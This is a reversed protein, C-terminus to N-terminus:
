PHAHEDFMRNAWRVFHEINPDDTHGGDHQRWALEGDLLDVNVGPMMEITYDDSRGLDRAGLLRFVPQAAIAAMFSGQHDLWLADGKEPIGHSIFVWRPACLAILFHSDMPLDNVDKRGFTSEEAGYKLFNGAMWHYGEWGTLNEVAEGFNRRYLSTGGEGSSAILGMAFRPDFAMTVLAAKGFRSVGDIGVRRADVEPLTELYDLGRSAGWAWARLAGWQDPKRPRGHNVLGIIGRTLGAGSPEGATPEPQGPRRFPRRWGGADAQVTSPNLIAYGWGAEILRDYKTPGETAQGGGFRYNPGFPSPDFPTWGFIMLVPRPRDTEKPMTLSMSINVEIEPCASNDVVGVIHQETCPQEGVTVDRSERIEWRVGPVEAPVRGIVEREVLEVIEPRRQDWWQQATVVPQGNNMTLLEPLRLYPNALAEDYNAANPGTANANGDRGPRLKQIGLQEMMNQHDQQVTFVVPAPAEQASLTVSLIPTWLLGFCRAPHRM